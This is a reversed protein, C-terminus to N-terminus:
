AEISLRLTRAFQVEAITGEYFVSGDEDYVTAARRLPLGLVAAAQRGANDILVDLRQSEGAGFGTQSGARAALRLSEVELLWPYAGDSTPGGFEITASDLVVALRM